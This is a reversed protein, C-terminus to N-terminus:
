SATSNSLEHDSWFTRGLHGVLRANHLLNACGYHSWDLKVRMVRVSAQIERVEGCHCM